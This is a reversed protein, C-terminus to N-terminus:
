PSDAPRDPAPPNDPPAAYISVEPDTLEPVEGGGAESSRQQYGLVAAAISLVVSALAFIGGSAPLVQAGPHSMLAVLVVPVSAVAAVGFAASVAASVPQARRTRLTSVLAVAQVVAAVALMLGFLGSLGVQTRGGSAVSDVSWADVVVKSGDSIDASGAWGITFLPLFLTMAMAAVALAQAATVVRVAPAQWYKM